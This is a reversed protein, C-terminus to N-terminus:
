SPWPKNEKRKSTPESLRVEESWDLGAKRASNELLPALNPHPAAPNAYLALVILAATAAAGAGMAWLFGALAERVRSMVSPAGLEAPPLAEDCWEYFGALDKMPDNM